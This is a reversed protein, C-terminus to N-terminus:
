SPRLGEFFPWILQFNHAIRRWGNAIEIPKEAPGIHLQDPVIDEALVYNYILFSNFIFARRLVLSVM